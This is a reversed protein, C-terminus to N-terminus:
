GISSSLSVSITPGDATSDLRVFDAATAATAIATVRKVQLAFEWTSQVVETSELARLDVILGLVAYGLTLGTVYAVQPKRLEAVVVGFGMAVALLLWRSLARKFVSLATAVVTGGTVPCCVPVGSDNKSYYVATSVLAELLGLVVLTMVFHHLRLLGFQLNRVVKYVFWLLLLFYASVLAAYFAPYAYM